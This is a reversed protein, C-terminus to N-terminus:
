ISNVICIPFTKGITKVKQDSFITQIEKLSAHTLIDFDDPTRQLMIDRVAGGVIYAQFGNKKFRDLIFRITERIKM